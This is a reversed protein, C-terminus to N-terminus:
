SNCILPIKHNRIRQCLKEITDVNSSALKIYSELLSVADEPKIQLADSVYASRLLKLPWIDHPDFAPRSANPYKRLNYQKAQEKDKISPAKVPRREYRTSSQFSRTSQCFACIYMCATGRSAKASQQAIMSCATKSLATTSVNLQGLRVDTMPSLSRRFM